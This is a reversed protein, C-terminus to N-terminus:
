NFILVPCCCRKGAPKAASSLGDTHEVAAVVFGHSALYTCLASYMSRHGGVGHSFAVVPFKDIDSALERGAEVAGKQTGVM